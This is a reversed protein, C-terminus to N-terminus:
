INGSFIRARGLSLRLFITQFHLSVVVLAFALFAYLFGTVSLLDSASAHSATISYPVVDNIFIRVMIILTIFAVIRLIIHGVTIKLDELPKAHVYGMSQRLAGASSLGHVVAATIIYVLLGVGAWVVLLPWSDKLKPTEDAKVLTGPQTLERKPENQQQWIELQNQFASSSFTFALIVGISLVLGAVVAFTGSLWSPTLLLNFLKKDQKDLNLM